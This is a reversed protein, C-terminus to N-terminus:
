PQARVRAAWERGLPNRDEVISFPYRVGTRSPWHYEQVGTLPDVRLQNSYRTTRARMLEEVIYRPVTKTEGRTFTFPRGNNWITFRGDANEDSVDHIHITVPEALFALDDQKKKFMPDDVDKNATSVIVDGEFYNDGDVGIQGEIDTTKTRTVPNNKAMMARIEGIEGKLGSLEGKLNENEAALKENAEAFEANAQAAETLQKEIEAKTAM